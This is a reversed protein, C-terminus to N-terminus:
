QNQLTILKLLILNGAIVQLASSILSAVVNKYIYVITVSRFLSASSQLPFNDLGLSLVSSPKSPSSRALSTPLSSATAYIPDFIGSIDM